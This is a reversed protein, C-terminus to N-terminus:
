RKSEVVAKSSPQEEGDPGDQGKSMAEKVARAISIPVVGKKCIPCSVQTEITDDPDTAKPRQGSANPSAPPRRSRRPSSM